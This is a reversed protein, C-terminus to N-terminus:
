EVRMMNECRFIYKARSDQFVDPWKLYISFERVSSTGDRPYDINIFIHKANFYTAGGLPGDGLSVYYKKSLPFPSDFDEVVFAHYEIRSVRELEVSCKQAERGYEWPTEGVYLGSQDINDFRGAYASQFSILFAFILFTKM